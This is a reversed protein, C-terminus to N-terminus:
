AKMMISTKSRHSRRGAPLTKLLVWRLFFSYARYDGFLVGVYDVPEGIGAADGCSNQLLQGANPSGLFSGRFGSAWIAIFSSFSLGSAGFGVGGHNQPKLIHCALCHMGVRRLGKM